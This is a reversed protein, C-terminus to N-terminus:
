AEQLYGDWNTVEPLTETYDVPIGTGVAMLDYNITSDTGLYVNPDMLAGTGEEVDDNFYDYSWGTPDMDYIPMTAGQDTYVYRTDDNPHSDALRCLAELLPKGIVMSVGLGWKNLVPVFVLQPEIDELKIWVMVGKDDRNQGRPTVSTHLEAETLNRPRYGMTQVTEPTIYTKPWHPSVLAENRLTAWFKGGDPDLFAIPTLFEGEQLNETLKRPPRIRGSRGAPRETQTANTAAQAPRAPTRTINARSATAVGTPSRRRSPPQGDGSEPRPVIQVPNERPPRTGWSPPPKNPPRGIKKKKQNDRRARAQESSEGDDEEVVVGVNGRRAGHSSGQKLGM